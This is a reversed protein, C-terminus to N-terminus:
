RILKLDLWDCFDGKPDNANDVAMTLLKVGAVSVDFSGAPSGLPPSRSEFLTRGDGLIRFAASGNGYTDSDVAFEGILRSWAGELAFDLSTTGRTGIGSDFM